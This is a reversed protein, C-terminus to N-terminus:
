DDPPRNQITIVDPGFEPSNTWGAYPNGDVDLDPYEAHFDLEYVDNRLSAVFLPTGPFCRAILGHVQAKTQESVRCGLTVSRLANADFLDAYTTELGQIPTMQPTIPKVLRWEREHSWAASKHLFPQAPDAEIEEFTLMPREHSYVVARPLEVSIRRNFELAIGRGGDAYYAWMLLDRRPDGPNSDSVSISACTDLSAIMSLVAHSEAHARIMDRYMALSDYRQMSWRADVEDFASQGAGDMADRSHHTVAATLEFADNLDSAKRYGVTRTELMKVGGAATVFKFFSYPTQDLSSQVSM